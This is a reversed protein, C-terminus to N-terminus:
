DNEARLLYILNEVREVPEICLFRTADDLFKERKDKQSYEKKWWQEFVDLLNSIKGKDLSPHAFNIKNIHETM